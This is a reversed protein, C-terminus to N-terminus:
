VIAILVVGGISCGVILGVQSPKVGDPQPVYPDSSTEFGYTTYTDIPSNTTHDVNPAYLKTTLQGSADDIAVEIQGDPVDFDFSDDDYLNVKAFDMAPTNNNMHDYFMQKLAQADTITSTGSSGKLSKFITGAPKLAYPQNAPDYKDTAYKSADFNSNATKEDYFSPADVYAKVMVNMKDKIQPDDIRRIINGSKSISIGDTTHQGMTNTFSVNETHIANNTRAALNDINNTNGVNYSDDDTSPYNAEPQVNLGTEPNGSDM